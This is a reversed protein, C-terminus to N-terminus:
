RVTEIIQQELDRVLNLGELSGYNGATTVIALDLDPVILLTQGGNGVTAAAALSQGQWDVQRTWFQYGYGDRPGAVIHPKTAEAVWSAPVVQRGKWKGRDLLMQGIKMLDRPKLRLGASALPTGWLNESWSWGNIALPEFLEKRAIDTLRTGTARVMIDALIATAGGSYVFKTGPQAEVDFGFVYRYPDTRWLLSLEDSIGALKYVPSAEQWQLGASMTMLHRVTIRRKEEGSSASSAPYLSSVPADLSPVQGRELLIGYLLSVISKTTSRMDHPTSPTFDSASKWLSWITQDRGSLYLESVLRGHRMVLVSHVNQKRAAVEKLLACLASADLGAEAPAGIAIGDNLRRPPACSDDAAAVQTSAGMVLGVLFGRLERGIALEGRM